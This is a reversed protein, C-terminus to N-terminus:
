VHFQYLLLDKLPIITIAKFGVIKAMAVIDESKLRHALPPGMEEQKYPWELVVVSRKACRKSESLAKQADDAEHLVLGLFVLDFSKDEFPISEATALQFIANPVLGKSVKIMEPNADIGVVTAIKKAFGEAFIGSGTGVDLISKVRGGELSLSIVREVELREIREPLRLREIEAQFRREHM